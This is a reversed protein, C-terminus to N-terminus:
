VIKYFRRLPQRSSRRKIGNYVSYDGDDEDDGDDYYGVCCCTWFNYDKTRELCCLHRQLRIM